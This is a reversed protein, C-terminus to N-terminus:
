MEIDFEIPQASVYLGCDCGLGERFSKCPCKTDPTKEVQCPCYGGNDKIRRRITRVYEADPNLKMKPKEQNM